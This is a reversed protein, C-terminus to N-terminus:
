SDFPPPPTGETTPEWINNQLHVNLIHEQECISNGNCLIEQPAPYIIHPRVIYLPLYRKDSPLITESFWRLHYDEDRAEVQTTRINNKLPHRSGYGCFRNVDLIIQTITKDPGLDFTMTVGTANHYSIKAQSRVREIVKRNKQVVVIKDVPIIKKDNNILVIYRAKIPEGFTSNKIEEDSAMPEMRLKRNAFHQADDSPIYISKHSTNSDSSSTFVWLTILIIIGITIAMRCNKTYADERVIRPISLPM